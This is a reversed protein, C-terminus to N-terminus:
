FFFILGLLQGPVKYVGWRSCLSVVRPKISKTLRVGSGSAHHPANAPRLRPKPLEGPVCIHGDQLLVYGTFCACEYSGWTNICKHHCLQGAYLQCEDVDEPEEVSNEAEDRDDISFAENSFKSDSVPPGLLATEYQALSSSCQM